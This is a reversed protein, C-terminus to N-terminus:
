SEQVLQVLNCCYYCWISFTDLVLKGQQGFYFLKSAYKYHMTDRHKSRWGVEFLYYKEDSIDVMNITRQRKDLDMWASWDESDPDILTLNDPIQDISDWPCYRIFWLLKSGKCWSSKLPPDITWRITTLNTDSDHQGTIGTVVPVQCHKNNM